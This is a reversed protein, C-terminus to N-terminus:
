LNNKAKTLMLPRLRHFNVPWIAAHLFQVINGAIGQKHDLLLVYV